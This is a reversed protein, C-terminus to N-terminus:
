IELKKVTDLNKRILSGASNLMRTALEPREGLHIKRENTDFERLRFEDTKLKKGVLVYSFM